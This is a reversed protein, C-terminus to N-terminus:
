ECEMMKPNVSRLRSISAAAAAASSSSRRGSTESGSAPRGNAEGTQRGHVLDWREDEEMVDDDERM